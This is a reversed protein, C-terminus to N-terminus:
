AVATFVVNVIGTVGSRQLVRCGQEVLLVLAYFLTEDVGSFQEAGMMYVALVTRGRCGEELCNSVGGAGGEV